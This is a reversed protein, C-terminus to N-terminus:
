VYVTPSDEYVFTCQTDQTVATSSYCIYRCGGVPLNRPMILYRTDNQNLLEVRKSEENFIDAGGEPLVIIPYITRATPGIQLHIGILKGPVNIAPSAQGGNPIVTQITKYM